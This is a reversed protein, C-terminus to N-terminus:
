ALVARVSRRAAMERGVEQLDAESLIRAATPFLEHDEFSAEEDATHRPAAVAFYTLAADLEPRHDPPLSGDPTQEAIVQLVHLFHEIRRHCDGLLGIPNSFDRAPPQGIQIRM